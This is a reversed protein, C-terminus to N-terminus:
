SVVEGFIRIPALCVAHLGGTIRRKCQEWPSLAALLRARCLRHVEPGLELRSRDGGFRLTMCRQPFVAAIKSRVLALLDLSPPPLPPGEADTAIKNWGRHESLQKYPVTQSRTSVNRASIKKANRTNIIRQNRKTPCRMKLRLQLRCSTVSCANRLLTWFPFLVCPNVLCFDFFSLFFSLM